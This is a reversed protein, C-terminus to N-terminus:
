GGERDRRLEDAKRVDDDLDATPLGPAGGGWRQGTERWSRWLRAIVYGLGGLLALLATYGIVRTM